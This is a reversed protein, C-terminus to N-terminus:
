SNKKSENRNELCETMAVTTEAYDNCLHRFRDMESIGERLREAEEGKVRKSVNKGDKWQQHKFYPGTRRTEGNVVRERYEETLRGKCMRNIGSIQDLLEKRKTQYDTIDM